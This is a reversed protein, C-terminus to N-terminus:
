PPVTSSLRWGIIDFATQWALNMLEGLETVEVMSFGNCTDGSQIIEKGYTAVGEPIGCRKAM